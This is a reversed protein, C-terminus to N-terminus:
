SNVMSFFIINTRMAYIAFGLSDLSKQVICNINHGTADYPPAGAASSTIAAVKKGRKAADEQRTAIKSTMHKTDPNSRANTM